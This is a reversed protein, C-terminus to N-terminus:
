RKPDNVDHVKGGRLPHRYLLYMYILVALAHRDTMINPLHRQPDDKKLHNTMVVEPAIFDPTGVVDPPYKGPVVLGDVDIVCARGMVPDILINKYSLDLPWVLRM